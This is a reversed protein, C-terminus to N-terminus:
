GPTLMQVSMDAGEDILSSKDTDYTQITFLGSTKTSRPNTVGGLQLTLDTEGAVESFTSRFYLTKEDTSLSCQYSGCSGNSQAGSRSFIVDDPITVAIYGLQPVTHDCRFKLTYLTNKNYTVYSSAVINATKTIGGAEAKFSTNSSAMDVAYYVNDVKTYTTVSWMGADQVSTPNEM